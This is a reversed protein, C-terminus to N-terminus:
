SVVCSSSAQQKQKEKEEMMRLLEAAKAEGFVRDLVQSMSLEGVNRGLWHSYQADHQILMESAQYWANKLTPPINEVHISEQCSLLFQAWVTRGDNLHLEQNPDAGNKLLLQVMNVDVSAEDRRSHYPMIIPTRRKPRLAYDLLPRGNKMMCGPDAQIKVRVYKVLRAQVTLALFNCNGGERYNNFDGDRPSDRAHTWHNKLSGAHCKNVNDVEDLIDVLSSEPLESKKEVEHAYYLLEDTLSILANISSKDRFDFVPLCKLRYLMIKTLSVLPNFDSVLEKTLQDHYCDQLFDRVTRHLFDVAPGISTPHPEDGVVLLDGCRNHIRSKWIHHKVSLIEDAIPRIRAKVAYDTDANEKDLLSFAFLPLPQVQDITMLFIRAMEERYEPKVGQIIRRFYEELDSPFQHVIKQLKTLGENRNIAHVLDRSVLFVWLWVGQARTSILTEIEKRAPDSAKLDRFKSNGYLQQRVYKRMDGKTFNHIILRRSLDGFNEEFISRFRSSACIKINRSSSLFTIMEVVEEEEGDYEDLGDIFFCFKTDLAKQDDILQFTKKLEAIEWVEHISRDPCVHPILNPVRRLIQYLLSQFLGLQSKQMGSGQNWFYYSATYFEAPSAWKELTRLTNEHESAFKM